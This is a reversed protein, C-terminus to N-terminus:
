DDGRGRHRAVGVAGVGDGAVDLSSVDAATGAGRGVWGSRPLDLTM